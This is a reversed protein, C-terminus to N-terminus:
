FPLVCTKVEGQIRTVSFKEESDTLEFSKKELGAKNTSGGVPLYPPLVLLM